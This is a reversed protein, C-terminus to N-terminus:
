LVQCKSILLFFLGLLFLSSGAIMKRKREPNVQISFITQRKLYILWISLPVILLIHSGYDHSLALKVLQQLPVWFAVGSAAVFISFYINQRSLENHLNMSSM